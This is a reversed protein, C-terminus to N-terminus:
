PQLTQIKEKSLTAVYLTNAQEAVLHYKDLAESLKGEKEDIQALLFMCSVRSYNNLKQSLLENLIQRSAPYDERYFSFEASTIKLALSVGQHKFNLHSLHDQFLQEAISLEGLYLHNSVLNIYYMANFLKVKKYKDLNIEYLVEKSKEFEGLVSLGLAYYMRFEDQFSPYFRKQLILVRKNHRLPDCHKNIIQILHYISGIYYLLFSILTFLVIYVITDLLHIDLFGFLFITAIFAFLAYKTSIKM